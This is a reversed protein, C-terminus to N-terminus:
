QLNRPLYMNRQWYLLHDTDTNVSLLYVASSYLTVATKFFPIDPLLLLILVLLSVAKLYTLSTGSRHKLILLPLELRTLAQEARHPLLTMGRKSTPYSFCWDLYSLVLKKRTIAFQMGTLLLEIRQKSTIGTTITSKRIRFDLIFLV